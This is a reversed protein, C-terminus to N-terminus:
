ASEQVRLIEVFVPEISAASASRLGDLKRCNRFKDLTALFYTTVLDASLLRNWAFVEEDAKPASDRLTSM